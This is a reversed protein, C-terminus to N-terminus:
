LVEEARRGQGTTEKDIFDALEKYQMAVKNGRELMRVSVNLAVSQNVKATQSITVPILKGFLNEADSEAEKCLIQREDHKILLAGLFNLDRNIQMLKEVRLKLDDLGDIAYKAGSEVPIMYHTAAAIANQTLLNLSPPCDIIIYDYQGMLPRLREKLVEAPRPSENRITEHVTELAISGYILHVGEGLKTEEHIFSTIDTKDNILLERANYSVQAPHHMGIHKSANTQPDFDIVLVWKGKQAMADALNIATTTKGVGGKHNAIALVRTEVEGYIADSVAEALQDKAANLEGEPKTKQAAAKTAM